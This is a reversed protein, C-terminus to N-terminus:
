SFKTSNCIKICKKEDLIDDFFFSQKRGSYAIGLRSISDIGLIAPSHLKQVVFVPTFISKGHVTLKLNYVGTVSLSNGGADM